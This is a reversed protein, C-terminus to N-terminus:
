SGFLFARLHELRGLKPIVPPTSRLVNLESRLQGVEAQLRGAENSLGANAERELRLQETVADLKGGMEALKQRSEALATQASTLTESRKQETTAVKAQRLQQLEELSGPFPKFENALTNIESSSLLKSRLWPNAQVVTWARRWAKWASFNWALGGSDAPAEIMAQWSKFGLQGIPSAQIAATSPRGPSLIDPLLRTVSDMFTIWQVPQNETGLATVLEQQVDQANRPTKYPPADKTTCDPCASPEGHEDFYLKRNCRTCGTCDEEGKYQMDEERERKRDSDTPYDWSM